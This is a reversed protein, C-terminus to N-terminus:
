AKKKRKKTILRTRNQDSTTLLPLDPPTAFGICAKKPKWFIPCPVPILSYLLKFLARNPIGLPARAAAAM